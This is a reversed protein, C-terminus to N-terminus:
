LTKSILFPISITSTQLNLRRYDGCPRWAGDPKLVMHLPSSWPSSSRRIIGADLLTEKKAERLKEPSLHCLKCAVPHGFTPIRHFTSHMPPSTVNLASTLEPYKVLLAEFENSFECTMNV